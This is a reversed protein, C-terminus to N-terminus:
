WLVGRGSRWKVFMSDSSFGSLGSTLTLQNCKFSAPMMSWLLFVKHTEQIYTCSEFCSIEKRLWPYSGTHLWVLLNLQQQTECGMLYLLKASPYCNAPFHVMLFDHTKAQKGGLFGGASQVKWWITRWNGCDWSHASNGWLCSCCSPSPQWMCSGLHALIDTNSKTNRSDCLQKQVLWYPPFASLIQIPFKECRYAEYRM